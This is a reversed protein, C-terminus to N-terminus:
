DLSKEITIDHLVISIGIVKTTPEKTLANTFTAIVPTVDIQVTKDGIVVEKEHLTKNQLKAQQLKEDIPYTKALTQLLDFMTPSENHISLINKSKNCVKAFVYGM